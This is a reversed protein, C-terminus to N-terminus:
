REPEQPANLKTYVPNEGRRFVWCSGVRMNLVQNMPKNCRESVARATEVDNGGLYIYTDCNSIITKDDFGYYQTLQSESQLMIMASVSRSRITSIMRPFEAIRCNTAFDDLIFRVPVPLRGGISDAFGCLQQMTQTVFINALEDMSRDTDSVTVFIATKEMGINRFDFDSREMMRKLEPTDLNAFKAALTARICDYTKIPCVNINEFQAVAWSDPQVAKYQTFRNSLRSSKDDEDKREGERMLKLVSDFTRPLVDTEVLYGILANLFSKTIKDWFPDARTGVSASEDILIESIKMIEQPTNIVALPNYHMSRAPHDFDLLGVIYGKEKLHSSYKNYLMGKPDFIIYSGVARMINPGVVTRSKGSGSGGLVIVNNNLQTLHDNLLYRCGQAILLEASDFEKRAREANANIEPFAEDSQAIIAEFTENLETTM